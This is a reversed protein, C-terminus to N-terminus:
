GNCERNICKKIISVHASVRIIGSEKGDRGNVGAVATQEETRGGNGDGKGAPIEGSDIASSTKCIQEGAFVYEVAYYGSGDPCLWRSTKRYGVTLLRSAALDPHQVIPDLVDVRLIKILDYM